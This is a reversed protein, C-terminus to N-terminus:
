TNRRRFRSLFSSYQNRGRQDVLTFLPRYIMCTRMGSVDDAAPPLCPWALTSSKVCIQGVHRLGNEQSVSPHRLFLVVLVAHLEPRLLILMM